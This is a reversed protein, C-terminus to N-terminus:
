QIQKPFNMSKRQTLQHHLGRVMGCFPPSMEQVSSIKLVLNLQTIRIGTGAHSDSKINLHTFQIFLDYTLM